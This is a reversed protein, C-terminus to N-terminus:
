LLPILPHLPTVKPHVTSSSFSPHHISLYIISPYTILSPINSLYIISPHVSPHISCSLCSDTILQPNKLPKEILLIDWLDKSAGVPRPCRPSWPELTHTRTQGGRGWRGPLIAAGRLTIHNEPQAVYKARKHTHSRWPELKLPKQTKPAKHPCKWNKPSKDPGTQSLGKFKVCVVSEDPHMNQHTPQAHTGTPTVPWGLTGEGPHTSSCIVSTVRVRSQSCSGDMHNM